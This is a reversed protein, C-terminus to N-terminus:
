IQAFAAEISDLMGRMSVADDTPKVLRKVALKHYLPDREIAIYDCKSGIAGVCTTGSGCYPDLVLGGEPTVMKVLWEMLRVPKVTNHSMGVATQFTHNGEVSLNVVDGDYPVHRVEKVYALTFPVGEYECLTPRSPKREQLARNHTTLRLVHTPKTTKFARDGIYGPEADYRQFEVKYGVMEALFRMQSALDRSASKAQNYTRVQGGDGALYGGVFAQISEHPLGWVCPHITKTAAGGGCLTQCLGGLDSDFAVVQVGKSAGKPYVSTKAPECYMRIREILDTEEEHLSFSPYRDNGHSQQQCGEALYLGILFWFETDDPRPPEYEALGGQVIPSMTYDGKEIQDARLWLVEHDVIRAGDRKPRWILYPHNDTVLSTFNTGIVRIEFLDPSTYPHRTVAEVLHFTGDATLVRQGVEIGTIPRYGHETMVLADPHLCPHDNDDAKAPVFLGRIAEPIIWEPRPIKPDPDWSMRPDEAEIPWHEVLLQVEDPKLEEEKLRLIREGKKHSVKGKLVGANKERKSAKGTYFFPAEPVFQPFVKAAGASQVDLAAVPCGEGCEYVPIDEEGGGSQEYEHGAGNGFPKM